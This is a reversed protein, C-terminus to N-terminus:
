PKAEERATLKARIQSLLSRIYDMAKEDPPHGFHNYRRQEFFLCTRLDSLSDHRRENAIVACAEFSGHAKYGNFTHAFKVILRWDATEAPVDELRLHENDIPEPIKFPQPM